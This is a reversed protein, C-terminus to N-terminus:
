NATPSIVVAFEEVKYQLKTKDCIYQLATAAPVNRLSLEDIQPEEMDKPLRLVINIGKKNPDTELTDLEVIRLRLFDVVEKITREEIDIMPIIIAKLKKEMASVEDSKEAAVGDPKEVASPSIVIAFEEVVYQLKTKDCIYQLATAAPVSRLRLEDIQPEEMDKPLRLVINIGKKKPDTELTDLEVIRLRLFDVVEKITREEFDINPIIIAKLKKEMAIVGDSKVAVGKPNEPASKQDSQAPVKPAEPTESFGLTSLGYTTLTIGLIATTITKMTIPRSQIQPNNLIIKIRIGLQSWRAMHLSHGFANRSNKATELLDEAYEDPLIGAALTSEDCAEEQAAVLQRHALWVLPHFWLAARVLCAVVRVLPDRRSIHASEHYLTSRLRRLPWAVSSEPLFVAASTVGATFPASPSSTIYLPVAPADMPRIKAWVGTIAEDALRKTIFRIRLMSVLVPLLVLTMGFFYVIVYWNTRKVPTEFPLEPAELSKEPITSPTSVVALNPDQLRTNMPVATDSFDTSSPMPLINLVGRGHSAIFVTPLIIIIGAWFVARLAPRKIVPAVAFAILLASTLKALSLILESNAEFINM